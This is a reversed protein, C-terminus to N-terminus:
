DSIPILPAANWKRSIKIEYFIDDKSSNRDGDNKYIERQKEIVCNVLM